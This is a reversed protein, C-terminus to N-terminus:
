ATVAKRLSHVEYRGHDRKIRQVAANYGRTYALDTAADTIVSDKHKGM